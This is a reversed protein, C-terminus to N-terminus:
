PTLTWGIGWNISINNKYEHRQRLINCIAENQIWTNGNAKQHARYQNDADPNLVEIDLDTIDRRFVKALDLARYFATDNYSYPPMGEEYGNVKYFDSRHIACWGSRNPGPPLAYFYGRELQRCREFLEPPMLIDIDHVIFIDGRANVAACNRAHPMSWWRRHPVWFVRIQPWKAQVIRGSDQPCSYDVFVIEDGDNLLNLTHPVMLLAQELRGKCFTLISLTNM